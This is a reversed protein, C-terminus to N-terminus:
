MYSVVAELLLLIIVATGTNYKFNDGGIIEKCFHSLTGLKPVILELPLTPTIAYLM